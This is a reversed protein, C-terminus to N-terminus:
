TTVVAVVVHGLRASVKWLSELLSQQRMCSEIEQMPSEREREIQRDQYLYPKAVGNKM